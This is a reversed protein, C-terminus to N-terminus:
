PHGSKLRGHHTTVWQFVDPPLARLQDVHPCRPFTHDKEDQFRMCVQTETELSIQNRTAALIVSSQARQIGPTRTVSPRGPSPEQRQARPNATGQGPQRLLAHHVTDSLVRTISRIYEPSDRSLLRRACEELDRSPTEHLIDEFFQSSVAQYQNCM